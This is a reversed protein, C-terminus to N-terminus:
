ASGDESSPQALLAHYVKRARRLDRIPVELADDDDRDECDNLDYYHAFWILADLVADRDVAPAPQAPPAFALKAIEKAAWHAPYLQRLEEDDEIHTVDSDGLARDLAGHIARLKETVPEAKGEYTSPQPWATEIEAVIISRVGAEIESVDELNLASWRTIYSRMHDIVNDAIWLGIQEADPASAPQSPATLAEARKIANAGFEIGPVCTSWGRKWMFACYAAVDLPDGKTIHRMLERGCEIQWDDTLWGDSYGYKQEARRLKEALAKAFGSVLEATAPHLGLDEGKGGEARTLARAKDMARHCRADDEADGEYADNADVIEQLAEFLEAESPRMSAERTTM